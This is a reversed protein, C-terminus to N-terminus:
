VSKEVGAGLPMYRFRFTGRVCINKNSVAEASRSGQIHPVLHGFRNAVGAGVLQVLFCDRIITCGQLPESPGIFGVLVLAAVKKM